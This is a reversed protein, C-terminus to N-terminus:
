ASGGKKSAGHAGWKAASMGADAINRAGCQPAKPSPSLVVSRIGSILMAGKRGGQWGAMGGIMGERSRGQGGGKAQAGAAHQHAGVNRAVNSVSLQALGRNGVAHQVVPQQKLDAPHPSATSAPHQCPPAAHCQQTSPGPNNPQCRLAPCSLAGPLPLLTPWALWNAKRGENQAACFLAHLVACFLM